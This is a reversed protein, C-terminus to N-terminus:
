TRLQKNFIQKVYIYLHKIFVVAFLLQRLAFKSQMEAKFLTKFIVFSAVFDHSM